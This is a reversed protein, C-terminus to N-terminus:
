PRARARGRATDILADGRAAGATARGDSWCLCRSIRQGARTGAGATRGCLGDRDRYAADALLFDRWRLTIIKRTM